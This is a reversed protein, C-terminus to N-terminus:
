EFINEELQKNCELFYKKRLVCFDIDKREYSCFSIGMFCLFYYVNLPTWKAAYMFSIVIWLFFLNLLSLMWKSLFLDHMILLAGNESKRNPKQIRTLAWSGVTNINNLRKGCFVIYVCLLYHSFICFPFHFHFPWNEIAFKTAHNIFLILTFFILKCLKIVM